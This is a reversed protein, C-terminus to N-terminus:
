RLSCVDEDICASLVYRHDIHRPLVRQSWLKPCIELPFHEWKQLLGFTGITCLLIPRLFGGHCFDAQDIAINRCLVPMHCVSLCRSAAAAASAYHQASLLLGFICRDVWDDGHHMSIFWGLVSLLKETAFPAPWILICTAPMNCYSMDASLLISSEPCYVMFHWM